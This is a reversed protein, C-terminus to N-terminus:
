TLRPSPGEKAGERVNERYAVRKGVQRCKKCSKSAYQRERSGASSGQKNNPNESGKAWEVGGVWVSLGVRGM